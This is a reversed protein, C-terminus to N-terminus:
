WLEKCKKAFEMPDKLYNAADHIKETPLDWWHSEQLAKITDKDFRYRIVKAPVGAVIAYPPVDKTVVSGSAIVAGNGITVGASINVCHCIWVDNGITTHPHAPIEHKAFFTKQGSNKVNHFTPSTSAWEMPHIEGGIFVHDSISCFSGISTNRAWSDYRIYTFRGVKCDILETGSYVKADPHIWTNKYAVGRLKKFVKYWIFQLTHYLNKKM